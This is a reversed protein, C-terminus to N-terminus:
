RKNIDYSDCECVAEDIRNFIKPTHDIWHISSEPNEIMEEVLAMRAEILVKRILELSQIHRM